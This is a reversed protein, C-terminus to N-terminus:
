PGAGTGRAPHVSRVSRSDLVNELLATETGAPEFVSKVRGYESHATVSVEGSPSIREVAVTRLFAGSGTFISTGTVSGAFGAVTVLGSSPTFIATVGTSFGPVGVIVSVGETVGGGVGDATSVGTGVSATLGVSVCFTMGGVGSATSAAVWVDAGPSESAVGSGSAIFVDDTSDQAELVVFFTANAASQTSAAPTTMRMQDM